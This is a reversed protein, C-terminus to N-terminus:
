APKELLQARVLQIAESLVESASLHSSDMVFADEAPKLPAVAREADRADRRIIDSLVTDYDTKIKNAALEEFRRRARVEPAATIYIKLDAKPYVVTGIDRGDLIVGYINDPQRNAFDQQYKLLATRVFPLAAVQSAASGVEDRRLAPDGLLGPGLNELFDTLCTKVDDENEPNKGCDLVAYGLGRYLMGTDLHALHFRAAINRALTGKGSAAPGDIAIVLKRNLNKIIDTNVHDSTRFDM